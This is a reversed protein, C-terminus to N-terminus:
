KALHNASPSRCRRMWLRSSAATHPGASDAPEALCIPADNAPAHAVRARTGDLAIGAIIAGGM